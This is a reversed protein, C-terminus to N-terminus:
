QRKLVSLAAELDSRMWTKVEVTAACGDLRKFVGPGFKAGERSLKRGLWAQVTERSGPVCSDTALGSQILFSAADLFEDPNRRVAMSELGVLRKDHQRLRSEHEKTVGGILALAQSLAQDNSPGVTAVESGAVANRLAREQLADGWARIEDVNRHLFLEDDTIRTDKDQVRRETRFYWSMLADNIAAWRCWHDGNAASMAFPEGRKRTLEAARTGLGTFLKTRLPVPMLLAAAWADVSAWVWQREDIYINGIPRGKFSTVQLPRLTLDSILQAM